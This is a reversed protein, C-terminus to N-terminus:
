LLIAVLDSRCLGHFPPYSIGLNSLEENSLTRGYEGQSDATGFGSRTVEAIPRRKGNQEVFLTKRGEDDRASRVWPALNGLDDPNAEVTEFQKLGQSVAFIKGHLFRCIDTTVEDLVAEAPALVERGFGRATDVIMQQTQTTAFDIM